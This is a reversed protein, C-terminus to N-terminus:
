AEGQLKSLLNRAAHEIAAEDYKAEISQKISEVFSKAEDRSMGLAMLGREHDDESVMSKVDIIRTKPNSPITVVSVEVLDVTKLTRAPEDASKGYAVDIARYGISLGSIAGAKSAIYADRGTSTDLFTGEVRLGYEDEEMKTWVGIPLSHPDHNLFMLPMDNAKLSKKFAGPLIVDNHSDVIGFVSAYGAFTKTDDDSAAFKVDAVSFLKTEM